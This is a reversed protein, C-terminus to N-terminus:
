PAGLLDRIDCRLAPALREASRRTLVGAVEIRYITSLGLGSVRALWAQSGGLAECRQKVRDGPKPNTDTM